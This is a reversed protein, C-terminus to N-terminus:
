PHMSLAAGHGLIGRSQPESAELAPAFECEKIRGVAEHLWAPAAECVSPCRDYESHGEGRFGHPEFVVELRKLDFATNHSHAGLLRVLSFPARAM